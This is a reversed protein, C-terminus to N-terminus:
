VFSNPRSHRYLHIELPCVFQRFYNVKTEKICLFDSLDTVIKIELYLTVYIKMMSIAYHTLHTSMLFNLILHLSKATLALFIVADTYSWANWEIMENLISEVM